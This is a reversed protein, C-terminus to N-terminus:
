GEYGIDCRSYIMSSSRGNSLFLSSRVIALVLSEVIPGKPFRVGNRNGQPSDIRNQESCARLLPGRGPDGGNSRTGEEPCRSLRAIVYGDTATPLGKKDNDITSTGSRSRSGNPSRAETLTFIGSEKRM